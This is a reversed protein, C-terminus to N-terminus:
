AGDQEALMTASGKWSRASAFMLLDLLALFCRIRPNDVNAMDDVVVVLRM